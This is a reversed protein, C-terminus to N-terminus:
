KSRVPKVETTAIYLEHVLPRLFDAVKARSSESVDGKTGSFELFDEIVEQTTREVSYEHRRLLNVAEESSFSSSVKISPFFGPEPSLLKPFASLAEELLPFLSLIAGDTKSAIRDVVSTSIKKDPTRKPYAPRITIITGDPRRIQVQDTATDVNVIGGSQANEPRRESM